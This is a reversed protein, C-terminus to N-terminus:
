KKTPEEVKILNHLLFGFLGGIIPGAVYIALPWPLFALADLSLAVAPNLIATGGVYSACTYSILLAVFMGLGITFATSIKDKKKSFVSAVAFGLILTGIVESFFLFWEKGSVIDAAAFLSPAAQGYLAAETSPQEAGGIFAGLIVLALAAGLFQAVIYGIARAMKIRKTIWASITVAPNVHAGSITGVFLVIGVLAFLVYLPQGQSTIYAAALLFTGIFEAVLAAIFATRSSSLNLMKTVSQKTNSVVKITSTTVKENTNPKKAMSKRTASSKKTAM